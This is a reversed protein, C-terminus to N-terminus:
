TVATRLVGAAAVDRVADARMAEVSGFLADLTLIRRACRHHDHEWTFGIGGLVQLSHQAVARGTQGALGKLLVTERPDPGDAGSRALATECADRLARVRVEAEALLHAVAQFSGIPAGFQHRERSYGVALAMLRDCTGLVEHAIAFRALSRSRHLDDATSAPAVEPGLDALATRVHRAARPDLAGPGDTTVSWASRESIRVEVTGDDRPLEVLVTSADDFGALATADVADMSCAAGTVPTASTDTTPGGLLRNALLVGLAPTAGLVRGQARFLSAFGIRVDPDRLDGVADWELEDLAQRGDWRTLVGEAAAIWEENGTTM